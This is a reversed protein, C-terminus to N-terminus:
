VPARASGSRGSSPVALPAQAAQYDSREREPVEAGIGLEIQLELSTQHKDGPRVTGALGVQELRQMDPRL